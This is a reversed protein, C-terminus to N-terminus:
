LEDVFSKNHFDKSVERGNLVDVTDKDFIGSNFIQENEQFGKIISSIKAEDVVADKPFVQEPIRLALKQILENLTQYLAVLLHPTVKNSEFDEKVDFVEKRLCFLYNLNKSVSSSAFEKEEELNLSDVFENSQHMKEEVFYKQFNSVAVMTNQSLFGNIKGFFPYFALFKLMIQMERVIQCADVVGYHEKLDESMKQDMKLKFAYEKHFILLNRAVCFENLQENFMAFNGNPIELTDFAKKFNPLESEEICQIGGFRTEKLHLGEYKDLSLYDLFFPDDRKRDTLRVASVFISDKRNKTFVAVTKMDMEENELWERVGFLKYGELRMSKVAFTVHPNDVEIYKKAFTETELILMIKPFKKIGNVSLRAKSTNEVATFSTESIFSVALQLCTFYYGRETSHQTESRVFSTLFSIISAFNATRSKYVVFSLIDMFDDGGIPEGSVDFAAKFIAKATREICTMMDYPTFYYNISQLTNVAKSWMNEKKQLEPRIHFHSQGFNKMSSLQEAFKKDDQLKSTRQRCIKLIHPFVIWELLELSCSLDSAEAEKLIEAFLDHPLDLSKESDGHIHYQVIFESLHKSVSSEYNSLQKLFSEHNPYMKCMIEFVLSNGFICTTYFTVLEEVLSQNNRRSVGPELMMEEARAFNELVSLEELKKQFVFLYVSFLENFVAVKQIKANISQLNNTTARLAFLQDDLLEAFEKLNSLVFM